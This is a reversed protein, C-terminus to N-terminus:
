PAKYPALKELAKIAQEWTKYKIAVHLGRKTKYYAPYEETPLYIMWGKHGELWPKAYVCNAKYDYSVVAGDPREYRYESKKEWAM